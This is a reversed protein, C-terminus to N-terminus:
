RVTISRAAHRVPAEAPAPAEVSQEHARNEKSLHNLVVKAQSAYTHKGSIVVPKEDAHPASFGQTAQAYEEATMSKAKATRERSTAPDVQVWVFLPQYGKSRAWRAFETRRVRSDSNGEFLFTQNTKAVENIVTTIIAGASATDKAHQEIALSDIYPANFTDAFQNAFFSKGSGPIGVMM